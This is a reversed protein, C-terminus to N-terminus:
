DKFIFLINRQDNINKTTAMTAASNPNVPMADPAAPMALTNNKIKRTSNTNASIPPVNRNLPGPFPYFFQYILFARSFNERANKKNHM